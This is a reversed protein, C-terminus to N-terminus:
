IAGTSVIGHAEDTEEGYVPTFPFVWANCTPFFKGVFDSAPFESWEAHKLNDEM